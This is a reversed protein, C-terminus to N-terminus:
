DPRGDAGGPSQKADICRRLAELGKLSAKGVAQKSVGLHLGAEALSLGLGFQLKLVSRTKATVDALCEELWRLFRRRELQEEQSGSCIGGAAGELELPEHRGARVRLKRARRVLMSRLYGPLGEPVQVEEVQGYFFDLFLTGVLDESEARSRTVRDALKRLAGVESRFVVEQAARDRRRLRELLDHTYPGISHM